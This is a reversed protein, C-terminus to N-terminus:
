PRMVLTNLGIGILGVLIYKMFQVHTGKIETNQFVWLKQMLFSVVFAICFSVISSLLYWIGLLDTFIYLFFIQTFAATGGGVLFRLIKNGEFIARIFNKKDGELAKIVAEKYRALYQDQSIIHGLAWNRGEGGVESRLQEDGILRELNKAFCEVNKPNCVFAGAIERAVGADSLVLALGTSAAEVISMGYGEFLSTSIYIDASAYLSPLDKVWGIFKVKDKINLDVCIKELNERESGEGAITFVAEPYKASVIKFAKLATELDKEKELRCVTLINRGTKELDKWREKNVEKREIRIPLVEVNENFDKVSERVREYVVRVSDAYPLVIHALFFRIFNLPSSLLFYKNNFDTHLQVQLPIKYKFKLLVGVIGIEFPDQTTLVCNTTQLKYNTILKRIIRFTDFLSSASYAYVNESINREFSKERRNIIVLDLKDFLRGYEVQRNRVASGEEFIKSDTGISIVKINKTM